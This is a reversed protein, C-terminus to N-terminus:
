GKGGCRPCYGRFRDHYEIEWAFNRYDRVEKSAQRHAKAWWDFTNAQSIRREYAADYPMIQGNYYDITVDPGLMDYMRRVTRTEIM